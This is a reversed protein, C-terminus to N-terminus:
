KQLGRRRVVSYFVRFGSPFKKQWLRRESAIKKNVRSGYNAASDKGKSSSIKPRALKCAM